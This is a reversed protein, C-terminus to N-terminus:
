AVVEQVLQTHVEHADHGAAELLGTGLAHLAASALSTRAFAQLTFTGTLKGDAWSLVLEAHTVQFPHLHALTMAADKATRSATAKAMALVEASPAQALAVEGRVVAMRRLPTKDTADPLTM